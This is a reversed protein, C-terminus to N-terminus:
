FLACARSRANKTFPNQNTDIQSTHILPDMTELTFDILSKSAVSVKVRERELDARLCENIHQLRILKDENISSM